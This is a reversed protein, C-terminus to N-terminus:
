KKKRGVIAKLDIENFLTFGLILIGGVIQWPTMSEHLFLVSVLIAVLPDIYSIVSVQQGTLEGISSFYMCYTVGTHLLGVVLLCGWGLGDLTNLTM